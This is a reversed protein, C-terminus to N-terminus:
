PHTSEGNLDKKQWQHTLFCHWCSVTPPSQELEIHTCPIVQMAYFVTHPMWVGIYPSTPAQELEAHASGQCCLSVLGSISGTDNFKLLFPVATRHIQQIANGLTQKPL